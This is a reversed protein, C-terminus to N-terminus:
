VNKLPSNWLLHEMVLNRMVNGTGRIIDTSQIISGLNEVRHHMGDQGKAVMWIGNVPTPPTTDMIKCFMRGLRKKPDSSITM